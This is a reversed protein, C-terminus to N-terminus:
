SRSIRQDPLQLCCYSKDRPNEKEAQVVMAQQTEGQLNLARAGQGSTVEVLRMGACGHRVQVPSALVPFLMGSTDWSHLYLPLPLTIEQVWQSSEYLGLHCQSEKNWPCYIGHPDYFDCNQKPKQKTKNQKHPNKTKNQTAKPKTKTLWLM